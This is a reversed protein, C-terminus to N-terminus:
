NHQGYYFHVTCESFNIGPLLLKQSIQEPPCCIVKIQSNNEHEISLSSSSFADSGVMRKAVKIRHQISEKIYLEAVASSKWGGLRKLDTLSGCANTLITTSTRRLGTYKESEPIHLFAAM